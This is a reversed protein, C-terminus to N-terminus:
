STLQKFDNQQVYLGGKRSQIYKTLNPLSSSLIMKSYVYVVRGAKYINPLTQQAPNSNTHPIEHQYFM